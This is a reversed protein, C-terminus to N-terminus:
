GSTMRWRQVGIIEYDFCQYICGKLITITLKFSTVNKINQKTKKREM